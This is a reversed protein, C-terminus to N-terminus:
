LLDACGCAHVEVCREAFAGIGVAVLFVWMRVHRGRASRGAASM